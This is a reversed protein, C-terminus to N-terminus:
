ENKIGNLSRSINVNREDQMRQNCLISVQSSFGKIFSYDYQMDSYLKDIHIIREGDSMQFNEKKLLNNLQNLNTNCEEILNEHVRNIYNIEERNFTNSDRARKYISQCVKLIKDNLALIDIVKSYDGIAPNVNKLSNFYDQHLKFEQNKIGGITNLGEKAIKYGKQLYEIYVKLAVIQQLLYKRQTKKQRLWEKLTQAQSTTSVSSFLMIFFLLKNMIIQKISYDM